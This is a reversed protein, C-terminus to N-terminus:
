AQRRRIGYALLTVLGIGALAYTSPEPVVASFPATVFIGASGDDFRAWFTVQGLDNFPSPRGDEVGDGRGIDTHVDPGLGFDRITLLGRGAVDIMDGEAAIKHIEGLEDALFIGNLTAAGSPFEEPDRLGAMFLTQGLNNIEALSRMGYYVLDTGPAADGERAIMNLVGDAGESVIAEDRYRGGDTYFWGKMFFAVHGAENMSPRSFTTGFKFDPDGAGPVPAEDMAVLRLPKSVGGQWLGTRVGGGGDVSAVGALDGLSNTAGALSDYFLRLNYDPHPVPDFAGILRTLNGTGDDVYTVTLRSKSTFITDGSSLIVPRSSVWHDEDGEPSAEGNMASKHWTGGGETWVGFGSTTGQGDILNAGAAVQGHANMSISRFRYHYADAGAGPAVDGVQAVKRIGSDANHVYIGQGPYLGNGDRLDTLFGIDGADNIVPVQENLDTSSRPAAFYLDTEGSVLQGEQFVAHQDNVGTGYFVGFDNDETIAPGEAHGQFVVVGHNNIMPKEIFWRYTSNPDGPISQGTIAVTRISVALANPAIGTFAMALAVCALYKRLM